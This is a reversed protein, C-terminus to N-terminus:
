TFIVLKKIRKYVEYPDTVINEFFPVEVIKLNDLRDEIDLKSIEVTEKNYRCFLHDREGSDNSVIFTQSILYAHDLVNSSVNLVFVINYSYRGCCNCEFRHPAFTKGDYDVRCINNRYDYFCCEGEKNLEAINVKTGPIYVYLTVGSPINIDCHCIPCHRMNYFLDHVNYFEIMKMSNMM